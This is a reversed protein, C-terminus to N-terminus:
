RSHLLRLCRSAAEFERRRREAVQEAEEDRGWQEIQWAEDVTAATWAEDLSIAGKMHAVALIASGSISTLMHVAALSLADLGELAASVAQLSGVPQEIPMLGARLKLHVGLESRAWALVPDWLDAQRRALAAPAEARYCLLDTGAFAAVDAAVRDMERSVADIASNALRTLPMTAPDIHTGQAQWEAAIAEALQEAPVVLPQKAPTRVPRGDLAIGFGEERREVSVKEYFRKPLAARLADKSIRPGEGDSHQGNGDSM